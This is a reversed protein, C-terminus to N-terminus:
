KHSLRKLKLHQPISNVDATNECNVLQQFNCNNITPDFYLGPACQLLVESSCACMTYYQCLGPFEHFTVENPQCRGPSSTTTPPPTVTTTPDPEPENGDYCSDAGDCKAVRVLMQHIASMQNGNKNLFNANEYGWWDWCASRVSTKWTLFRM